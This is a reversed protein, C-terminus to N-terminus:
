QNRGFDACWLASVDALVPTPHISAVSRLVAARARRLTAAGITHHRWTLGARGLHFTAPDTEELIAVLAAGAAHDAALAAAGVMNLIGPRGTTRVVHDLGWAVIPVGTRESDSIFRAAVVPDRAPGTAVDVLTAAPIAEATAVEASGALVPGAALVIRAAPEMAASFAQEATVAAGLDGDIIVTVPWPAEAAAMTTVLEGSLEILRSAPCLFSGLVPATTTARAARYGAVADGLTPQNPGLMSADDILSVLLDRSANPLPLPSSM